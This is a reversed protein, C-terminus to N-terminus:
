ATANDAYKSVAALLTTKDLPRVLFDNAGLTLAMARLHDSAAIAIIPTDPCLTTRCVELALQDGIQLMADLIILTPHFTAVRHQLVSGTWALVVHYGADILIFGVTELLAADFAAVLVRTESSM